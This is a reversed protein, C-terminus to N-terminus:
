CNSLPTTFVTGDTLTTVLADTNSLTQSAVTPAPLTIVPAAVSVNPAAVSVKPAAVSVNVAPASVTVTPAAVNNTTYVNTVAAVEPACDSKNQLYAIVVENEEYEVTRGPAPAPYGFGVTTGDCALIAVTAAPDISDGSRYAYGIEDCACADIRFSPCYVPTPVVPVCALITLDPFVSGAPASFTCIVPNYGAGPVLAKVDTVFASLSTYQSGGWTFCAPVPCLSVAATVPAPTPPVVIPAPCCGRMTDSTITSESPYVIIEGSFPGASFDFGSVLARLRVHQPADIVIFPSASDLTVKKGECCMLPQWATESTLKDAPIECCGQGMSERTPSSLQVMELTVSAGAPLGLAAITVQKDITFNVLSVGTISAQNFLVTPQM